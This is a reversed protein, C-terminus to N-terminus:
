RTGNRLYVAIENLFFIMKVGLNVGGSFLERTIPCRRTQFCFALIMASGPRSLLKVIDEATRICYVFTVSQRVSACVGASLLSRALAYRRATFM